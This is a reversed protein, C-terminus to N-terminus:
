IEETGTKYSFSLRLVVRVIHNQRKQCTSLPILPKWKIGILEPRCRILIDIKWDGATRAKNEYPLLNAERRDPGSRKSHILYTRSM